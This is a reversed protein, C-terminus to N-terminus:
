PSGVREYCYTAGVVQRLAFQQRWDQRPSLTEWVADYNASQSSMVIWTAVHEPQALATPFEAADADTIFVQDPLDSYFILPEFPAFARVINTLPAERWDVRRYVCQRM